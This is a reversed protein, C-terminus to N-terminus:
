PRKWSIEYYTVDSEDDVIAILLRKRTSHAVRNKAAFEHWTLTSGEAVPYLIWKAHDQGPKIGKDYVRFDAGFKLATKVIYGRNRMDKFVIFKTLFNPELKCAKKLFSDYNLLRKGAYIKITKKELLYLAEVLSYNIKDEGLEGFSTKEYLQKAEAEVSFVRGGVFLAKFSEIKKVQKAIREKTKGKKPKKRKAM